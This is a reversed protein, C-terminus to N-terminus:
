TQLSRNIVETDCYDRWLHILGNVFSFSGLIPLDWDVGRYTWHDIREVFVKDGGVGISIIEMRSKDLLKGYETLRRILNDRGMIAQRSGAKLGGDPTFLSALREWEKNDFAALAARVTEIRQDSTM